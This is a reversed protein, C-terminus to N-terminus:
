ASLHHTVPTTTLTYDIDYVACQVSADVDFRLLDNLMSKSKIQVLGELRNIAVKDM